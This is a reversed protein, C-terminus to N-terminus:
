HASSLHFTTRDEEEIMAILIGRDRPKDQFRLLFQPHHGFVCEGRLLMILNYQGTYDLAGLQLFIDKSTTLLVHCQNLSGIALHMRYIKSKERRVKEVDRAFRQLRTDEGQLTSASIVVTHM